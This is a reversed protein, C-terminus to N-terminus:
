TPGFSKRLKRKARMVIRKAAANWGLSAAPDVRIQAFREGIRNAAEPSLSIEDAASNAIAQEPNSGGVVVAAVDQQHLLWALSVQAISVHLRNAVPEICERIAENIRKANAPRFSAHAGTAGGGELAFLKGTLAGSALPSYALTGIGHEQTLSLIGKASSQKILSY